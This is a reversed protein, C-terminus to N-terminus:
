LDPHVVVMHLHHISNIIIYLEWKMSANLSMQCKHLEVGDINPFIFHIFLQNKLKEKTRLLWCRKLDRELPSHLPFILSEALLLLSM